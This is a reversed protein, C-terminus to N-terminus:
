HGESQLLLGLLRCATVESVQVTRGKQEGGGKGQQSENAKGIVIVIIGTSIGHYTRGIGFM